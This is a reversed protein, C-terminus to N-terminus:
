QTSALLDTGEPRQAKEKKCWVFEVKLAFKTVKEQLFKSLMMEGCNANTRTIMNVISQLLIWSSRM